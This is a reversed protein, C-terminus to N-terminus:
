AGSRKIRELVIAHMIALPARGTNATPAKGSGMAATAADALERADADLRYFRRAIRFLGSVDAPAETNNLELVSADL